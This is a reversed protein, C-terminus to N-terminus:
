HRREQAIALWNGDSASIHILLTYKEVKGVSVKDNITELHARYSFSNSFLMSLRFIQKGAHSFVTRSICDGRLTINKDRGGPASVRLM